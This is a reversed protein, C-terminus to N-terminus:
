LNRHIAGPFGDLEADIQDLYDKVNGPNLSSLLIDIKQRLDVLRSIDVDVQKSRKFIGSLEIENFVNEREWIEIRLSSSAEKAKKTLYSTTILMCSTASYMSAGGKLKMVDESGVTNNENYRKCQIAIAPSGSQTAILDVGFDGTQPTKKVSFGKRKFIEAVLDEFQIGTMLDIKDKSSILGKQIAQYKNIKVHLKERINRIQDLHPYFKKVANCFDDSTNMSELFDRAYEKGKLFHDVINSIPEIRNVWHGLRSIAEESEFKKMVAEHVASYVGAEKKSKVRSGFVGAGLKTDEAAQYPSSFEKRMAEIFVREFDKPSIKEKAFDLLKQRESLSKKRSFEIYFISTFVGFVCPVLPNM